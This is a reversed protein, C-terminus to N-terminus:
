ESWGGRKGGLLSPTTMGTPTWVIIRHQVESLTEKTLQARSSEESTWNQEIIRKRATFMMVPSSSGSGGGSVLLFLIEFDFIVEFHFPPPCTKNQTLLM